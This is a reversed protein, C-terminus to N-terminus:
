ILDFCSLDNLRETGDFGGFIYIRDQYLAIDMGIRPTFSTTSATTQVTEESFDFLISWTKKHFDFSYLKESYRGFEGLFGGIVILKNRYVLARHSDLCPFKVAPPTTREKYLVESWISTSFDFCFMRNSNMTGM